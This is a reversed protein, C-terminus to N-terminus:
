RLLNPQNNKMKVFIAQVRAELKKADDAQQAALKAVVAADAGRFDNSPAYTFHVTTGGGGSSTVGLAGNSARKLPM